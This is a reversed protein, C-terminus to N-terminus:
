TRPCLGSLLAKRKGVTEDDEGWRCFFCRLCREGEAAVVVIPNNLYVEKRAASECHCGGNGLHSLVFSITGLLLSKEESRPCNWIFSSPLERNEVRKQSGFQIRSM